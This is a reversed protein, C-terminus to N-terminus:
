ILYTQIKNVTEKDNIKLGQQQLTNSVEKIKSEFGPLNDNTRIKFSFTGQKNGNCIAQDETKLDFV